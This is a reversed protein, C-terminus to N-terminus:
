AGGGGDDGESLAIATMKNLEEGNRRELPKIGEPNPGL